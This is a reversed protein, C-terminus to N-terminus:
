AGGPGNVTREMQVEVQGDRARLSEHGTVRFGARAYLRRARDNARMVDLRIIRANEARAWELVAAVLALAAGTGRLTPHVWMAMLHVVDPDDTDRQGAVIGRATDSIEVIFTAGPFLWRRWDATTRALEREYTSGFADPADTMAQLRLERLVPEDGVYARRVKM